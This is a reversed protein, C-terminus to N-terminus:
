FHLFKRWTSAAIERAEPGTDKVAPTFFPFARTVQHGRTGDDDTWGLELRRSYRATPGVQLSYDALSHREVKGSRIGRRATGTVVNPKDGGVHAQRKTHAGVFNEKARKEVLAATQTIATRAAEDAGAAVKRLAAEFEPLGLMGM